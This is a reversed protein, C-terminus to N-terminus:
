TNPERTNFTTMYIRLKYKSNPKIYRQYSVVVINDVPYGTKELQKLLWHMVNPMDMGRRDSSAAMSSKRNYEADFEVDAHVLLPKDYQLKWRKNEDFCEPYRKTLYDLTIPKRLDKVQIDFLRLTM